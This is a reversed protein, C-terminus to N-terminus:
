QTALLCTGGSLRSRAVAAASNRFFATVGPSEALTLLEKPLNTIANQPVPMMEAIQPWRPAM